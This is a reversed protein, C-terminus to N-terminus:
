SKTDWNLKTNLPVEQCALLCALCLLPPSNVQVHPVSFWARSSCGSSWSSRTECRSTARGRAYIHPSFLSWFASFGQSISFLCWFASLQCSIGFSWCTSRRFTLIPCSPPCWRSRIFITILMLLLASDLLSTLMRANPNFKTGAGVEMKSDCMM